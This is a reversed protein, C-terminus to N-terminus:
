SKIASNQNWAEGMKWDDNNILKNSDLVKVCKFVIIANNEM